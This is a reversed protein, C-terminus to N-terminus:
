KIERDRSQMMEDLVQNFLKILLAYADDCERVVEPPVEEDSRIYRSATAEIMALANCAIDLSAPLSGELAPM